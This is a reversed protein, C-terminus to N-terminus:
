NKNKNENKLYKSFYFHFSHFFNEEGNEVNQKDIIFFSFIFTFLLEIKAKKRKFEDGGQLFLIKRTTYIGGM